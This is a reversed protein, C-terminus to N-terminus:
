ENMFVCNAVEMDWVSNWICPTYGHLLCVRGEHPKHEM